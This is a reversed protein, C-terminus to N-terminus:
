VGAGGVREVIIVGIKKTGKRSLFFPSCKGTYGTADRPLRPSDGHDLEDLAEAVVSRAGDTLRSGVLVNIESVSQLVTTLKMWFSRGGPELVPAPKRLFGPEPARPMPWLADVPKVMHLNPYEIIVEHSHSIM